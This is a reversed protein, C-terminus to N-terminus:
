PTLLRNAVFTAVAAYGADNLHIADVRLSMPVIDARTEAPDSGLARRSAILLDRIPLFNRGYAASLEENLRVIATHGPGGAEEGPFDGNIVGLVLYRAGAPVAAVMAAIDAKVRDPERYNNRGAWIIVTAAGAPSARRTMRAAIQASTEGGVGENDTDAKLLEGLVSPYDHRFTAGEGATLSDGWCIITQARRTADAGAPSLMQVFAKLKPRTTVGEELATGLVVNALVSVLLALKLGGKM